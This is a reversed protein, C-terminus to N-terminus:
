FLIKISVAPLNEPFSVQVEEVKWLVGVVQVDAPGYIRWVQLDVSRAVAVWMGESASREESNCTLQVSERASKWIDNIGLRTKWCAVEDFSYNQRPNEFLWLM